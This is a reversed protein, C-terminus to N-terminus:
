GQIRRNTPRKPIQYRQWLMQMQCMRQRLMSLMCTFMDIIIITMYVMYVMRGFIMYALYLHQTYPWKLEVFKTNLSVMQCGSLAVMWVSLLQRFTFPVSISMTCGCSFFSSSFSPFFSEAQKKVCTRACISFWLGMTPEISMRCGIGSNTVIKEENQWSLSRFIFLIRPKREITGSNKVCKIRSNTNKEKKWVGKSSKKISWVIRVYTTLLDYGIVIRWVYLCLPLPWWM